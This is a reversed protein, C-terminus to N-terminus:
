GTENRWDCLVAADYTTDTFSGNALYFDSVDVDSAALRVHSPGDIAVYVGDDFALDARRTLDAFAQTTPGLETVRYKGSIGRRIVAWPWKPVLLNTALADVANSLPM